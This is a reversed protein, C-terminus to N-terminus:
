TSIKELEFQEIEEPTMKREIDNDCITIDNVGTRNYGDWIADGFYDDMNAEDNWWHDTIKVFPKVMWDSEELYVYDGIKYKVEHQEDPSFRKIYKM